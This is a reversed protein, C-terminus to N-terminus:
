TTNGLALPRDVRGHVLQQAALQNVLFHYIGSRGVVQASHYTLTSGRVKLLDFGGAHKGIWTRLARVKMNFDGGVIM